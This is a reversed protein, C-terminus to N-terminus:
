IKANQSMREIKIRKIESLAIDFKKLLPSFVPNIKCQNQAKIYVANKVLLEIAEAKSTVTEIDFVHEAEQQKILEEALREKEKAQLYEKHKKWSKLEGYGGNLLKVLNNSELLWNITPVFKPNNEFRLTKLTYLIDPLKTRLDDIKKAHKKLSCIDSDSLVPEDGMVAKYSSCFDSILWRTEIAQKSNKSKEEQKEITKIIRDSIYCNEDIHFLKYNNLISKIKEEYSKDIVLAEEGIMLENRYMFEVIAWYLGYGEFGMDLILKKIEKKERTSYDHSFYPETVSSVKVM